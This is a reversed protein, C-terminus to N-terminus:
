INCIVTTGKPIFYGDYIDDSSTAHPIGLPGIPQWGLTERLISEVYPLSARDEFTPLRDKGIVSNIEAQARRQVDPYSVMALAFAMLTSITTDYAGIMATTATKKLATESMPKSAEDQKGIRRLNEAVMSLRELSSSDTKAHM